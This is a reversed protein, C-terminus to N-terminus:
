LSGFSQAHRFVNGPDYKQKVQQLRAFHEGYYARQWGELRRDAYGSYVGAHGQPRVTDWSADVWGRAHERLEPTSRAGVVTTHRVMMRAGRHPFCSTDDGRAYAGGWPIFELERHQAYRRDVTLAEVCARIADAGLPADFFNSRTFQYAVDRYPLSPMWAPEGDHNLVGVLYDAAQAPALRRGHLASALPGLRRKLAEFHEAARAEDGLIVGFLEVYPPTEDDDLLALGLELNVDPDAEPAWAQWLAVLTAAESLPWQGHCLTLPELPFTRLALRTVIGFGGSGAGRLAWYLDQAEDRSARVLRGDALVVDMREIQDATLGYRRGLFGFGGVLGLGGLAVLGCGGTPLVRGHAALARSVRSAHAGPEALAVEGQCEVHNLESLDLVVGASSSLDAFCHGGSRVSFPLSRAVLLALTRQVDSAGRCQVLVQPLPLPQGAAFQKKALVMREDGTLIVSGQLTRGLAAWDVARCREELENPTM